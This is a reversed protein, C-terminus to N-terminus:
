AAWAVLVAWSQRVLVAGFLVEHGHEGGPVHGAIIRAEVLSLFFGAGSASLFLCGLLLEM